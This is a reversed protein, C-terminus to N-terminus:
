IIKADWGAPAQALYEILKERTLLGAQAGVHQCVNMSNISGWKLSNIITNGQMYAVTFTSAFADGAGTREYPPAIDPYIDLHVVEDYNITNTVTGDANPSVSSNYSYAGHPGDTLIPVTPGLARLGALLEKIVEPSRPRSPLKLIREAEEYNCFFLHTHKYIRALADTGWKMQFTGPQFVLQTNPHADLYDAVLDHFPLANESISSLYMYKIDGIDPLTYEYEEHKILITREDKYWLVYHYNTKKGANKKVFATSVNQSTLASLCKEGDQDDGINVVLASQLGLRAASVAANASNGVAPIVEAFAFPIKDGFPLSIEKTGDPLDTTHARSKEDLRIFADVVMDGIAVFDISQASTQNASTDIIPASTAIETSVPDGNQQPNM